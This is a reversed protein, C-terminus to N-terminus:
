AEKPANADNMGAGSFRGTITGHNDHAGVGVVHQKGLRMIVDPLFSELVLVGDENFIHLGDVVNHTGIVIYRRYVTAGPNRHASRQRVRHEIETRVQTMTDYGHCVVQEGSETLCIIAYKM